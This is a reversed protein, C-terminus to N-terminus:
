CIKQNELTKKLEESIFKKIEDRVKRYFSLAKEENEADKAYESPDQFSHHIKIKTKGLWLPCSEKANDCVTIVAYFDMDKLEEIHKSRHKSIDIGTEKMVKIAKPDVAAPLTGASYIEFENPDLINKAFGEAM